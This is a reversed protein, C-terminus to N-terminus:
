LHSVSIDIFNFPFPLRMTLWRANCVQFVFLEFAYMVSYLKHIYSLLNLLMEISEVGTTGTQYNARRCVFDIYVRDGVPLM